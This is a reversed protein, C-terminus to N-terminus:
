SLDFGDADLFDLWPTLHPDARNARVARHVVSEDGAELTIRKFHPHWTIVMRRGCELCHWEEAGSPYDKEFTMNHETM